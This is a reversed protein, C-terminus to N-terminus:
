IKLLKQSSYETSKSSHGKDSAAKSPQANETNTLM